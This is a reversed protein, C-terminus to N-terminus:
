TSGAVEEFSLLLSAASLVVFEDLVGCCLNSRAAIGGGGLIASGVSSSEGCVVGLARAVEDELATGKNDSDTDGGAEAGSAASGLDTGFSDAAFTAM